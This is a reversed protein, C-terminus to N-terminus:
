SFNLHILQSVNYRKYRGNQYRVCDDLTLASKQVACFMGPWGTPLLRKTKRRNEPDAPVFCDSDSISFSEFNDLSDEFIYPPGHHKGRSL